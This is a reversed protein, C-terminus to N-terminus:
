VPAAIERKVEAPLQWDIPSKGVSSLYENASSFHKCGTFGRV